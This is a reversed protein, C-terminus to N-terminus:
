EMFEDDTWDAFINIGLRFSTQKSNVDDFYKLNEKFILFRKKFETEDYKKDFEKLFSTFKSM